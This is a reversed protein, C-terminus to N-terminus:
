NCPNGQSVMAYRNSGTTKLSFTYSYQSDVTYYSKGRIMLNSYSSGGLVINSYNVPAGYAVGNVVYYFRVKDHGFVSSYLSLTTSYRGDTGAWLQYWIESGDNDLLVIWSGTNHPDNPAMGDNLVISILATVDAVNITGEGTIDVIEHNAPTSNLVISILATVDAVNILGDRNVDGKMYSVNITAYVSSLNFSPVGTNDNPAFQMGSLWYNYVGPEADSPITFSLNVASGDGAPLTHASTGQTANRFIFQNGTPDFILTAAPDIRETPEVGDLYVGFDSMFRVIFTAIDIDNKIYTPIVVKAGPHAQINPITVRAYNRITLTVNDIAFYDGEPNVSSDKTYTWTLTHSGSALATTYTEWNNESAGYSFKTSGDIAFTCVDWSSGEGWAKFDFSLTADGGQPVNVTATITSSSSHVGKNGSQAYVRDGEVINTWPYTTTSTFMISGGSTNLAYDLTPQINEFSKWHTQNKYANLSNRPVFLTANSTQIMSFCNSNNLQPPTTALCTVSTLANCGTFAYNGISTINPPLTVSKLLTCSEFASTGISTVTGPISVGTLNGCYYFARYGISSVTYTENAFTVTSPIGVHGSYTGYNTDKYTVAVTAPSTNTIAYYIGGVEFSYALENITPFDRWGVAAQYASKSGKPVTLTIGSNNITSYFASSNCSPPTLAFCTVRTLNPCYCIAYSEVSTLGAPLNLRTFKAYGMSSGAIVTVTSPVSYEVTTNGAPYAVLTTKNKNFLVGDQSSYYANSSSVTITTLSQCHYFPNEGISEVSAPITISTLGSSEFARSGITKLQSPLSISQLAYCYCFAAAGIFTLNSNLNVTALSSCNYFAYRRIATVNSGITISTLDSCGEFAYEDIETVKFGNANDPIEWGGSPTITHGVVKATTSSTIMFKLSWYDFDYDPLAVYYDRYSLWYTAYKYDSLSEEPVYISQIEDMGSLSYRTDCTPPSSARCKLTRVHSDQFALNGIRTITSPLDITTASSGIFACDNVAKVTYTTGNYTVTEPVFVYGSYSAVLDEPMTGPSWEDSSQTDGTVEVTNSSLINYFVGDVKFSYANAVLSCMLGAVLVLLLKPNFQRIM